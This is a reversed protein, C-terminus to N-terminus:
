PGVTSKPLKKLNLVFGAEVVPNWGVGSVYLMRIPMFFSFAPTVQFVATATVSTSFSVAYSSGGGTVLPATSQAISPGVDAGALFNFRGTRLLSKHFGQRISTSIAYFSKGTGPDVAKVPLFSTVTTGYVDVSSILPYIAVIGGLWKNPAGLQNYEAFVGLGTPLVASPFNVLVPSSALQAAAPPAVPAVTQGLAVAGCCLMM